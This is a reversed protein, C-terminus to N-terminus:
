ADTEALAVKDRHRSKEYFKAAAIMPWNTASAQHSGDWLRVWSWLDTNRRSQLLYNEAKGHGFDVVQERHVICNEFM